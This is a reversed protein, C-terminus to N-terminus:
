KIYYFHPMQKVNGLLPTNMKNIIYNHPKQALCKYININSMQTVDLFLYKKFNHSNSQDKIIIKNYKYIEQKYWYIKICFKM